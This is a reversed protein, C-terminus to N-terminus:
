GKTYFEVYSYLPTILLSLSFANKIDPNQTFLGCFFYTLPFCFSALYFAITQLCVKTGCYDMSFKFYNENYYFYPWYIICMLLAVAALCFLGTVYYVFKSTVIDM